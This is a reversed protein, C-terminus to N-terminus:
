VMGFSKLWQSVDEKNKPVVAASFANLFDLLIHMYAVNYKNTYQGYEKKIAEIHHRHLWHRYPNRNVYQPYYKDLWQHIEPYEANWYFRDVNLHEERKM